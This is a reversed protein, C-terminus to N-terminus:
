LSEVFPPRIALECDECECVFRFEFTLGLGLAAKWDGSEALKKIDIRSVGEKSRMYENIMNLTEEDYYELILRYFSDLSNCTTIDTEIDCQEDRDRCQPSCFSRKTCNCVIDITFAIDVQCVFCNTYSIKLDLTYKRPNSGSASMKALEGPLDSIDGSEAINSSVSMKALIGPLDAIDGSEDM